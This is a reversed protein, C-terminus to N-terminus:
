QCGLRTSPPMAQEGLLFGMGDAKGSPKQATCLRKAMEGPAEPFGMALARGARSGCQRKDGYTMSREINSMERRKGDIKEDEPLKVM